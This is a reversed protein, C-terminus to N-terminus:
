TMLRQHLTLKSTFHTVIINRFVSLLLLFNLRGRRRWRCISRIKLYHMKKKWWWRSKIAKEKGQGSTEGRLCEIRCWSMRSCPLNHSDIEQGGMWSKKLRKRHNEQSRLHLGIGINAMIKKALSIQRIFVTPLLRISIQSVTQTKWPKQFFAKKQVTGENRSCSLLTKTTTQHLISCTCWQTLNLLM